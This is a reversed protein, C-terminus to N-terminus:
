YTISNYDSEIDSGFPGKRRASSFRIASNDTDSVRSREDKPMELFRLM